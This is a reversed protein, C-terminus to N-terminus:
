SVCHIDWTGLSTRESREYEQLFKQSLLPHSKVFLDKSQVKANVLRREISNRALFEVDEGSTHIYLGSTKQCEDGKNAGRKGASGGALAASSSLTISAGSDGVANVKEIDVM